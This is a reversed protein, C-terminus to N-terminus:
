ARTEALHRRFLAAIADFDVPKTVHHDFGAQATRQRADEQGWGTLAIMLVDRGRAQQRIRQAAAYGDMGPMGLDMLILQPWTQEVAALAQEGDYAASAAYGELHFLALLSDAADHNDDVVLVHAAPAEPAGSSVAPVAADATEAKSAPLTVLFRSGHGPGDSTVNVTGGHMEAFQRSLSLGIGLGSTLQGELTRSQEFMCFIRDIAGPELGIGNDEISVLLQKGEMQAALHIHGGPPTFKVANTVINAFIQVVRAYDAHLMVTYPPLDQSIGIHQESAAPQCLELVHGLMQELTFDKRQLEIKGTNIRAVDLLDDVLRTLHTVQREIMGRVKAVQESDPYLHGLLAASSKIPALPNRLEHGLSALFQDKRQQAERVQYQRQRARLMAHASTILTLVHVPRELLTLNGLTAIAQRLPLSDQGSRTLLIIPLDSWDAQQHAYEDLVQYAGRNLAEDVTLVGGAGLALQEALEGASHCAHSHMAGSALVQSALIADQGAPAYILIREEM